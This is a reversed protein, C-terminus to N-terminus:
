STLEFVADMGVAVSYGSNSVQLNEIGTSLNEWRETYPIFESVIGIVRFEIQGGKPEVELVPGGSNGPYLPCDLIITGREPYKNAIIGKRLLPRQYDWQPNEKLGIATPYGFVIVENGVLVKDLKKTYNLDVGVYGSKATRKLRVGEIAKAMGGPPGSLQQIKFLRLLVVDHDPHPLINGSGELEQLDLVVEITGTDNPDKPYALLTASPAILSANKILVHKATVFFAHPPANLFFGSGTGGNSLTVLVPYALNDDPIVRM